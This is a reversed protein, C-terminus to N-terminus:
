NPLRLSGEPNRVVGHNSGFPCTSIRDGMPFQAACEQTNQLATLTIATGPRVFQRLAGPDGASRLETGYANTWFFGSGNAHAPTTIGSGPQYIGFRQAGPKGTVVTQSCSIDNCITAPDPNNINWDRLNVGLMTSRMDLRWPEYFVPNPSGGPYISTMVPMQRHGTSGPAAIGGPCNPHSMRHPVENTNNQVAEGFDGLFTVDAVVTGGLSAAISMEHFRKCVSNVNSTGFHTVVHIIAGSAPDVWSLGKFGEAFETDGGAAAAEHYRPRYDPHILSPDDGHEHRLYCWYVPDIPRHWSHFLEGNSGLAMYAPQDHVWAPCTENPIPAAQGSPVAPPASPTGGSEALVLWWTNGAGGIQHRAAPVVLTGASVTKTYVTHSGAQNGGGGSTVIPSSAAYGQAALWGPAAGPGRWVLGVTTPRRLKLTLWDADTATRFSDRNATVLLDWGTYPGANSVTFTGWSPDAVGVGVALQRPRYVSQPYIGREADRYLFYYNDLLVGAGAPPPPTPTDTATATPTPTDTSTPSPTATDTATATATPTDTPMPTFTQTATATATQTATATAAALLAWSLRATAGGTAEFYELKVEHEGSAVARDVTYTVAGQAIWKDHILVGDLYLRAGDDTQVTFRYTGATGFQFRGTWRASFNDNPVASGGIDANYYTLPGECQTLLPTGALAQGSYYVAQYQGVPCTAQATVPTSAPALLALVM